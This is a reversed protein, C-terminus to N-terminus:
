YFSKTRITSVSKTAVQIQYIATKERSDLKMYKDISSSIMGSNLGHPSRAELFKVYEHGLKSNERFKELTLRKGFLVEMFIDVIHIKYKFENALEVYPRMHHFEMNTNDVFVVGLNNKMAERVAEQNKTHNEELLDPSFKYVGDDDIFYDDTSFIHKKSLDLDEKYPCSEFLNKCRTTKGCGSPGRMIFMNKKNAEISKAKKSKVLAGPYKVFDITPEM